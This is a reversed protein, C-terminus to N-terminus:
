GRWTILLDYFWSGDVLRVACIWPVSIISYHTVHARTGVYTIHYSLIPVGGFVVSRFWRFMNELVEDGSIPSPSFTLLGVGALLGNMVSPDAVRCHGSRGTTSM